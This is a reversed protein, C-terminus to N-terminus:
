LKRSEALSAVVFHSSSFVEVLLDGDDFRLVTGDFAGRLSAELLQVLVTGGM